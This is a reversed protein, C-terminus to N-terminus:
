PSTGGDNPSKGGSEDIYELRAKRVDTAILALRTDAGIEALKDLQSAIKTLAVVIMEPVNAQRKAKREAAAAAKASAEGRKAIKRETDATRGEISERAERFQRENKQTQAEIWKTPNSRMAMNDAQCIERWEETLAKFLPKDGSMRAAHRETTVTEYDRTM